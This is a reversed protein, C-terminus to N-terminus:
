LDSVCLLTIIRGRSGRKALRSSVGYRYFWFVAKKMADAPSRCCKPNNNIHLPTVGRKAILLMAYRYWQSCILPAIVTRIWGNKQYKQTRKLSKKKEEAPEKQLWMPCKKVRWLFSFTVLCFFPWELSVLHFLSYPEPFHTSPQRNNLCFITKITKQNLSKKSPTVKFLESYGQSVGIPILSDLASLLALVKGLEEPAVCCSLMSRTISHGYSGVIDIMAGLYYMWPDSALGKVLHRITTSAYVITM